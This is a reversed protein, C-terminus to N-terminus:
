GFCLHVRDSVGSEPLFALPELYSPDNLGISARKFFAVLSGKDHEVIQQWPWREGNVVYPLMFEVTKRISRGDETEYNWLDVGTTEAYRAISMFAMTNMTTYNMSKTRALEHPQSGDSEIQKAIRHEKAEEAVKEVIRPDGTYHALACLQADYWTGHNNRAKAEDQGMDSCVLWDRYAKMWMLLDSRDMDTIAGSLDLLGISEILKCYSATDIIGIGRGDCRGPISQGYELHPNMRTSPDLFWTRLLQAGHEAASEEDFFFWGLALTEVATIMRGQKRSDLTEVDPNVEGDKRIYPLGDPTDPDPWWYPGQSMYDHKDGSPPVPVKSMVTVPEFELANNVDARLQDIAPQVSPDSASARSKADQLATWSWLFLRPDSM